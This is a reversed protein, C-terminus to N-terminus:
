LCAICVEQHVGPATSPTEDWMAPPVCGALPEDLPVAPDLPSPGRQLEQQAAMAAAARTLPSAKTSAPARPDPNVLVLTDCCLQEIARRTEPPMAPWVIYKLQPMYSPSAAQQDAIDAPPPFPLCVILMVIQITFWISYGSTQKSPLGSCHGCLHM